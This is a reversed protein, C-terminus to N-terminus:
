EGFQKYHLGDIFKIVMRMEPFGNGSGTLLGINNAGFKCDCFKTPGDFSNGAYVCLLGQIKNLFRLMETKTMNQKM